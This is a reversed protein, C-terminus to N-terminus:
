SGPATACLPTYWGEPAAAKACVALAEEGHVVLSEAVEEMKGCFAETKDKAFDGSRYDKPIPARVLLSAMRFSVQGIRAMAGAKIAPDATGLTNQFKDTAEKGVKKMEEVFAAFTTKSAEIAKKDAPDFNLTTPFALAYVKALAVQDADLKRKGRSIVVRTNGCVTVDDVRKLNWGPMGAIEGAEDRLRDHLAVKPAPPPPPPSADVPPVPAPAPPPTPAPQAVPEPEPLPAQPAAPKSGGGCATLVVLVALSRM